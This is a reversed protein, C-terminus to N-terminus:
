CGPWSISSGKQSGGCADTRGRPRSQRPAQPPAGSLHGRLGSPRGSVATARTTRVSKGLRYTSPDASNILCPLPIQKLEQDPNKCRDAIRRAVGFADRLRGGKAASTRAWSSRSYRLTRPTAASESSKKIGGSFAVAYSARHASIAPTGLVEAGGLVRGRRSAANM